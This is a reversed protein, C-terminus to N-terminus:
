TRVVGTASLLGDEGGSRVDELDVGVGLLVPHRGALLGDGNGIEVIDCPVAVPDDTHISGLYWGASSVKLLRM